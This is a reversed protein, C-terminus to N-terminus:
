LHAIVSRQSGSQSSIQPSNVQKRTIMESPSCLGRSKDFAERGVRFLHGHHRRVLEHQRGVGHLLQVDANLRRAGADLVEKQIHDIGLRLTQHAAPEYGDVALRGEDGLRELERQGHARAGTQRGDARLLADGVCIRVRGFPGECEAGAAVVEQRELLPSDFEAGMLLPRQRELKQRTGQRAESFYIDEDVIFIVGVLLSESKSNVIDLRLLAIIESTLFRKKHGRM